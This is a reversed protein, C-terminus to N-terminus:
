PEEDEAWEDWRERRDKVPKGSQSLSRLGRALFFFGAAVVGLMIKLLM